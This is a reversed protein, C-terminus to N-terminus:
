LNFGQYRQGADPEIYHSVLPYRKNEAIVSLRADALDNFSTGVGKSGDDNKWVIVYKRCKSCNGLKSIDGKPEEIPTLKFDELDVNFGKYIVKNYEVDAFVFELLPAPCEHIGCDDDSLNLEVSHKKLLERLEKEFASTRENNIENTRKM